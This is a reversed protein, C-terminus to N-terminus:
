RGRRLRRGHRRRHARGDRGMRRTKSLTNLETQLEGWGHLELVPPLRADLRLVRDPEQRAQTPRRCRPRTPAPSWWPRTPSRSLGARTRGSKACTGARPRPPDGRAHLARHHLRPRADRGRGRRGGRDDLEGVAALFVPPARVSEPGPRVDPDDPTAHLVRRPLRAQDRRALSSWIARMALIFERMRPAPHSWPMSYRKEIHPKIQSGLGLMFPGQLHDAPRQRGHGHTMPNRAFAVAIGTGLQLRETHEAALLWPLFPDHATEASWLGDFGIAEARTATEVVRNPDFGIFGDVQVTPVTAAPPREPRQITADEPRVAGSNASPWRGGCRSPAGQSRGPGAKAEEGPERVPFGRPNQRASGRRGIRAGRDRHAVLIAVAEANQEVMRCLTSQETRTLVLDAKAVEGFRRRDLLHGLDHAREGREARGRCRCVPRRWGRDGRTRSRATSVVAAFDAM